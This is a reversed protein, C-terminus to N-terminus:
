MLKWLLLYSLWRFATALLVCILTERFDLEFLYAFLWWYMAVSLMYGLVAGSDNPFITWLFFWAGLPGIAIAGIKLIALGITGFCVDLLKAAIVIAFLTVGIEWIFRLGITGLARAIEGSTTAGWCVKLATLAAGFLILAVPTYLDRQTPAVDAIVQVAAQGPRAYALVRTAPGSAPPDISHQVAPAQDAAIEYTAEEDPAAPPPVTMMHGCGCAFKRGAYEPAWDFRQGYRHCSFTTQVAM